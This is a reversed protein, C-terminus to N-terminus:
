KIAKKENIKLFNLDLGFVSFGKNEITQARRTM